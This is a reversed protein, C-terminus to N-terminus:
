IESSISVERQNFFTKFARDLSRFLCAENVDDEDPFSKSKLFSLSIAVKFLKV